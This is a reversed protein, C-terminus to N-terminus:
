KGNKMRIKYLEEVYRYDDQLKEIEYQQASRDISSPLQCAVLILSSSIILTGFTKFKM